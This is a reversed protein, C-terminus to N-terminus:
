SKFQTIQSQLRISIEALEQGAQATQTAGTSLEISMNHIKDINRNVEESVACQEESASAIQDSMQNISEMETAILKLADGSRSALDVALKSQVKSKEMVSVANNSGSQLKDIINNIEETSQQTRSALTRVEDAVVAFGRGQEGARAAEIAANLALLNTQEAIAKIVELMSAIAGSQSEVESIAQSSIELQEALEAIQIIVQEVVKTGKHTQELVQASSNATQVINTAVDRSTTTFENMATAVQATEDRQIEITSCTQATVVSVEEAATSLQETMEAVNSFLTLLKQRMNNMATLLEGIEDTSNVEISQSLDGSATSIASRIGSVINNTIYWSSISGFLVGFIAMMSLVALAQKEHATAIHASEETFKGIQHLLDELEKNMKDIEHEVKEALVEAEHLHNQTLLSFVEHAHQEFSKHEKEVQKLGQNLMTFADLAAGSSHEIGQQAIHEAELIETEIQETGHDFHKIATQLKATAGKETQQINGYHMAREFEVSQQLQHATIDALKETLPIDIDAISELEAGIKYMSYIAFTSSLILLLLLLGASGMLKAKLSLNNM